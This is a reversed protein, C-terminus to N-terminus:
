PVFGELSQEVIIERDDQQVDLHRAQVAEIGSGADPLPLLAPVDGDDEQSRDALLRAVDQFAVRLRQSGRWAMRGM